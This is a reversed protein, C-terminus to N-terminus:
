AKGGVVIVGAAALAAVILALVAVNPNDRKQNPPRDALPRDAPYVGALWTWVAWTVIIALLMDVSYHQKHVVDRVCAQALATWLLGSAWRPKPYYTQVALPALVWFAAHGSFILDNCGGFGRLTTYGAKIIGWASDPVPGFRRAYCGPQPNPLVTTMFCAMRLVRSCAITLVVRSMLGFGSFPMQEWLGSFALALLVALFHLAAAWHANAVSWVWPLRRGAWVVALELNDQLPPVLEYKRQDSASVLWVMGNEVGLELLMACFCALFRLVHQHEDSWRRFFLLKLGLMVLGALVVAKVVWAPWPVPLFPITLISLIALALHPRCRLRVAASSATGPQMPATGLSADPAPKPVLEQRQAPRRLM